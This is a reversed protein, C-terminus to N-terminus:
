GNQLLKFNADTLDYRKRLGEITTGAKVAEKAADWKDHKSNMKEKVKKTVTPRIRLADHVGGFAAVGEEVFITIAQGKWDQVYPSRTLMKVRKSNGSNLIMPKFNAEKFYAINKVSNEKLGATMEQKVEKITLTIDKYDELDWSGLYPSDTALKYHTKEM